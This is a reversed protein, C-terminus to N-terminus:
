QSFFLDESSLYLYFLVLFKISINQCECLDKDILLAHIYTFVLLSPIMHCNRIVAVVSLFLFFLSTTSFNSTLVLATDPPYFSLCWRSSGILENEGGCVAKTNVESSKRKIKEGGREEEQEKV